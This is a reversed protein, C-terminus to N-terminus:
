TEKTGKIRIRQNLSYVGNWSYQRILLSIFEPSVTDTLDSITKRICPQFYKGLLSRFMGRAPIQMAHLRITDKARACTRASDSVRVYVEM